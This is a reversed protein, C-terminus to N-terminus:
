IFNACTEMIGILKNCNEGIRNKDENLYFGFHLPEFHPLGNIFNKLSTSSPLNSNSVYQEEGSSTDSDSYPGQIKKSLSQVNPKAYFDITAQAAKKRADMSFTYGTRPISIKQLEEDLCQLYLERPTNMKKAQVM